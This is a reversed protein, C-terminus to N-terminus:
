STVMADLKHKWIENYVLQKKIGAICEVAVKANKHATIKKLRNTKSPMM